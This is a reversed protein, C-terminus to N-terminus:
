VNTRSQFSDDETGKSKDYSVLAESHQVKQENAAGGRPNSTGRNRKYLQPIDNEDFLKSHNFDIIKVQVQALSRM